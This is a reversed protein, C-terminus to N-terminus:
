KQAASDCKGETLLENGEYFLHVDETGGLELEVEQALLLAVLM